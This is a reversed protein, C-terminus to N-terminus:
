IEVVHNVYNLYFITEGRDHGLVRIIDWPAFSPAWYLAPTAGRFPLRVSVVDTTEELRAAREKGWNFSRRGYRRIFLGPRAIRRRETLASRRRSPDFPSM